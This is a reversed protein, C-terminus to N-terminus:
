MPLGINLQILLNIGGRNILDTEIEKESGVIKLTGKASHKMEPVILNVYSVTGELSVYNKILSLIFGSGLGYTFLNKDSTYKNNEIKGKSTNLETTFSANYYVLSADFLKWNLADTIPMGVDASISFENVVLETNFISKTKDALLRTAKNKENLTSYYGKVTLLLGSFNRRFFNIGVRLGRLQGYKGLPVQLSDQYYQNYSSIYGNVGDAQYNQIEYGVFGGLLGLCGFGFEQSYIRVTFLLFFIAITRM